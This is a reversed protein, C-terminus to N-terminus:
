TVESARHCFDMFSRNEKHSCERENCTTLKIVELYGYQSFVLGYTSVMHLVAISGATGLKDIKEAWAESMHTLVRWM